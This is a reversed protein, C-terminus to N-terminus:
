LSVFLVISKATWIWTRIWNEYILKKVIMENKGSELKNHRPVSVFATVLFIAVTSSLYFLHLGRVPAAYYWMFYASLLELLMIPAVIYSIRDSHRRHFEKFGEDQILLFGPYQVVQVLWILGTMFLCSFLHLKEWLGM